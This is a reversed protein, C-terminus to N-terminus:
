DRPASPQISQEGGAVAGEDGPANGPAGAPPEACEAAGSKGDGAVASKGEDDAAFAPDAEDGTSIAMDDEDDREYTAVPAAVIEESDRRSESEVVDLFITLLLIDAIFTVSGLIVTRVILLPLSNLLGRELTATTIFPAWAIAQVAIVVLITAFIERVAIRASAAIAAFPGADGLVIAYDSYALLVVAVSIAMTVLFGLAGGIHAVNMAPEVLAGGGAFVITLIAQLVLLRGFQRLSQPWLAFDGALSRLYAARLFAMAPLMFLAIAITVTGPALLANLEPDRMGFYVKALPQRSAWWTTFLDTVLSFATLVISFFVVFQRAQLLAIVRQGRTHDSQAM